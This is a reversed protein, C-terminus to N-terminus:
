ITVVGPHGTRSQVFRTAASVRAPPMDLMDPEDILYWGWLAPHRDFAHLQEIVGARTAGPVLASSTALVELKAAHAADLFSDSAEGTVVDFGAAKVESLEQQPVDYLGFVLPRKAPASCGVLVLAMACLTHRLGFEVFESAIPKM